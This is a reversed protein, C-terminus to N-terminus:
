AALMNAPKEDLLLETAQVRPHSHFWSQVVGDNLFNAVALLSMGQHHAMWLRILEYEHKWHHDKSASFDASEYFGYQAFWGDHAMRRLNRLATKAFTNLALFTSYPSIVLADVDGHFIALQPIGFAHYGYNGAADRTAFSSESIGWAIRKAATFEQQSLVAGTQSRDLLTRPYTKMWIAPMMYEFMTGTWSLLIARGHDVIHSRSLLFWTEQPIEDKAIAVFSATRSESALLDYCADHLIEQGADFGISLLKRRASRLFGFEMEDALKGASGSVIEIEQVLRAADMRAGSVMSLLRQVALRRSDAPALGNVARQLRVEFKTLTEPLEGLTVTEQPFGLTEDRRLEDFDLLMWPAYRAVFQRFEHLRTIAQSGFWQLDQSHKEADEASSIRELSGQPFRLLSKIWSGTQTKREVKQFLSRPFARLDTLIRLHDLFGEALQPRLLPQELLNLCGRELTWLSAVLNGSDVTSVFLPPLPQLTRTDYWNYLHGRYRPMSHLVNLTRASLDILETATLYGFDCAVQRANLLLGVNTPSIRAAVQFPQEQVNDPILWNHEETSFELFYRWTRIAARRLFLRDKESAESRSLQPPRNLWASVLKSSGWLVLIPLAAFIAPRRILYVVGALVLALVPMWDLYIDVPTRKQAGLEAEAATEWELLRQRTFMRRVITRVVADMSVLMQHALFVLSLFVTFNASFLTHLADRVVSLKKEFFARVLTFVFEFWVPVFLICIAAITWARSSGPLVLWSLIFLLFTTPEVLSRRLNDLIKWQSVLSIPNAVRRGTEDPVRSFLWSTIQWDGRLWRHKRRNYASYHSPYDEVVEVDTVLGARAYAGEILDHSLLANQPFRHELVRQVISVEYIGKGAFIGECYLDQYVDSVAHTYIDMGTQGSYINALRSRSASQVSVRVRPQLIGYGAVVVNKEPDVIAQNLPHALTGILRQAAGRPVETDADLTIVFRVQQLVSLDGAKVPFSDYHGGLLRNLDLLKGRKREWGMWVKEHPNYVRHRHLLLFSGQGRNSYKENLEKILRACLDVLPDDENSPVSSDPLDTLLAFHLNADHNGLYRVELDQVLRHVQKESLLLAPVAVLTTCDEPIEESFDLKPLIEPRLLATTLYNMVQVASQSSPLLLLLMSFLILGPPTNTSTLLLVIASMIGFTLIEIGPLYFEDPHTRLFHRIRWGLSPRFGVRALLEGSGPGILYFGVHSRRRQERPDDFGGKQANRALALAAQAVEIETSDSREAIKVVRERYLARSDFDMQSYADAPDDRLVKDFVIQSDLADKWHLQGMERLSRVCVGVKQPTEPNDLCKRGRVAVQELLVLELSPILGWLEGFKLPVCTQYADLYAVFSRESFEFEVTHLFAEVIGAARPITIGRPTRAHPLRDLLKLANRTNWLLSSLFSNNERLWRHDDSESESRGEKAVTELVGKLVSAMAKWRVEYFPSTQVSPNWALLRSLEEANKRLTQLDPAAIKAGQPVRESEAEILDIHTNQPM